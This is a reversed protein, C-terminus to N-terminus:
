QFDRTPNVLPLHYKVWIGWFLSVLNDERVFCVCTVVLSNIKVIYWRYPFINLLMKTQKKIRFKTEKIMYFLFNFLSSFPDINYSFYSATAVSNEASLIYIIKWVEDRSRCHLKHDVWRNGNTLDFQIQGIYRQM